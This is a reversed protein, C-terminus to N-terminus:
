TTRTLVLRLAPEDVWSGMRRFHDADSESSLAAPLRRSNPRMFSCQTQAWMASRMHWQGLAYESCRGCQATHVCTVHEVAIGACTLICARGACHRQGADCRRAVGHTALDGRSCHTGQSRTVACAWHREATECSAADAGPAPAGARRGRVAGVCAARDAATGRTARPPPQFRASQQRSWCQCRCTWVGGASRLPLWEPRAAIASSAGITLSSLHECSALLHLLLDLAPVGHANAPNM